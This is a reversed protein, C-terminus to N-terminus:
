GARNRSAAQAAATSGSIEEVKESLLTGITHKYDGVSGAFEGFARGLEGQRTDEAREKTLDTFIGEMPKPRPTLDPGRDPRIDNKGPVSSTNVALGALEEALKRIM